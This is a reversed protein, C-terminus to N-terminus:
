SVTSTNFFRGEAVNVYVGSPLPTAAKFKEIEDKLVAVRDSREEVFHFRVELGSGLRQAMHRHAILAQLAIIPSGDEGGTYRGPGAFGDLILIRGNWSGM